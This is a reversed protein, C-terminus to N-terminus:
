LTRTDFFLERFAEKTLDSDNKICDEFEEQSYNNPINNYEEESIEGLNFNMTGLGKENSLHYYGKTQEEVRGTIDKKTTWRVPKHLGESSYIIEYTKDARINSKAGFEFDGKYERQPYYENKCMEQFEIGSENYIINREQREDSFTGNEPYASTNGKYFTVVYGPNDNWGGNSTHEM